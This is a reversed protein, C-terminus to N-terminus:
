ISSLPYTIDWEGIRSAKKFINTPTSKRYSGGFKMGGLWTPLEVEMSM